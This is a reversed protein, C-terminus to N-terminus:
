KIQHRRKNRRKSRSNRNKRKRKKKFFYKPNQLKPHRTSFIVLKECGVSFCFRLDKNEPCFGCSKCWWIQSLNQYLNTDEGTRKKANKFICDDPRKNESQLRILNKCGNHSDQSLCRHLTGDVPHFKHVSCWYREM